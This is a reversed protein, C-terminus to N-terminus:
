DKQLGSIRHRRTKSRKQLPERVFSREVDPHVITQSLDSKGSLHPRADSSPSFPSQNGRLKEEWGCYPVRWYFVALKTLRPYTRPPLSSWKRAHVSCDNVGLLTPLTATLWQCILMAQFSNINSQHTEKPPSGRKTPKFPFHVPFEGHQAIGMNLCAWIVQM